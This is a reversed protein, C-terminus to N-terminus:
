ETPRPDKSYVRLASGVSFVVELLKGITTIPPQRAIDRIDNVHKCAEVLCGM